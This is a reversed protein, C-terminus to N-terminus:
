ISIGFLRCANQRTALILEQPTIEKIEALKQATYPLMSSDCRKGRLPVPAMYPCDTEILLKDIPVVTAAAPGKKNNKFTIAGTFGIYWGMQIYEQATQASGSFCHIVGHVKPHAKVVALTDQTAERSHIIVPLNLQEALQMQQEFVELQERKTEPTYHYDLGIEGIAVVKPHCAYDALNQLYNTGLVDPACDPHIGVAAYVFDYKTALQLTTQCSKPSCGVNISCDLGQSHIQQLLQDQDPLFAEDDYAHSDFINACMAVPPM